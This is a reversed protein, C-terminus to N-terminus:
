KSISLYDFNLNQIVLIAKKRWRLTANAFIIANPANKCAYMRQFENKELLYHMNWKVGVINKILELHKQVMQNQQIQIKM